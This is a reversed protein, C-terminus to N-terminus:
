ERSGTRFTGEVVVSTTGSLIIAGAAGRTAVARAAVQRVWCAEASSTVVACTSGGERGLEHGRGTVECQGTGRGRLLARKTRKIRGGCLTSACSANSTVVAGRSTHHRVQRAGRTTEANRSGDQRAGARGTSVVGGRRLLVNGVANGAGRTLVALLCVHRVRRSGAQGTEVALLVTNRRGATLIGGVVHRVLVREGSGIDVVIATRGRITKVRRCIRSIGNGARGTGQSICKLTHRNVVASRAWRAVIARTDTHGEVEGRVLGNQAVRPVVAGATDVGRLNVTALVTKATSRLTLGAREVVHVANPISGPVVVKQVGKTRTGASTTEVAGRATGARGQAKHVRTTLRRVLVAVGLVGAQDARTPVPAVRGVNKGNLQGLVAGDAAEAGRTCRLQLGVAGNTGPAITLIEPILRLALAAGRAAVAGVSTGEGLRLNRHGEAKTTVPATTTVDVTKTDDTAKTTMTPRAGRAVVAGVTRGGVHGMGARRTGVLGKRETRRKTSANDAVRTHVTRTATLNGNSALAGCTVVAWTTATIGITGVLGAGLTESDILGTQDSSRARRTVVARYERRTTRHHGSGTRFACVLIPNALIVALAARRSPDATGAVRQRHTASVATVAGGIGRGAVNGAAWRSGVIGIDVGLGQGLTVEARSTAVAGVVLHVGGPGEALTAVVACTTGHGGHGCKTGLTTHSTDAGLTVVARRAGLEVRGLRAGRTAEVGDVVGVIDRRAERARGTVVTITPPVESDSSLARRTVVARCAAGIRLATVLGAVAVAGVGGRVVCLRIGGTTDAGAPVVAGNPGRSRNHANRTLVGRVATHGEANSAGSTAPATDAGVQGVSAGATVVAQLVCRHWVLVGAWSTGQVGSHISGCESGAQSAISTLVAVLRTQVLRATVAARAVVALATVYERVTSDTHHTADTADAGNTVVACLARRGRGREGAGRSRVLGEELGRIDGSAQGACATEVAGVGGLASRSVHAASSVVAGRSAYIVGAGVKAAGAVASDRAPVATDARSTVVARTRESATLNERRGARSTGVARGGTGGGAEVAGLTVVAGGRSHCRLGAGQTAVAGCLGSLDLGVARNARVIILQVTGVQRVACAASSSLVASATTVAGERVIAESAVIADSTRRSTIATQTRKTTLTALAGSAVPATDAGDGGRLVRAGRTGVLRQSALGAGRGAKSAERSVVAVRCTHSIYGARTSCTVVAGCSTNILVAGSCVVAHGRAWAGATRARDAVAARLLLKNRRDQGDDVAGGARATRSDWRGAGGTVEGGGSAESTALLAGCAEVAENAILVVRVRDGARRTGEAGWACAGHNRLARSTGEGVIHTEVRGQLARAACWTTNAGGLTHGRGTSHARRTVVAGTSGTIDVSAVTDEASRNSREGRVALASEQAGRTVVARDARSCRQLAARTGVVGARTTHVRGLGADLAITALVATARGQRFRSARANTAVVAGTAANIHAAVGVHGATDATTVACSTVIARISCRGGDRAWSTGSGRTSTRARARQARSTVVARSGTRRCRDDAGSAAEAGSSRGGRDWLAGASGERVLSTEGNFCLTGEARSGHSARDDAERLRVHPALSPVETLATGCERVTRNTGKTTSAAHARSPVVAGGWGRDWLSAERAGHVGESTAVCRRRANVARSSVIALVRV